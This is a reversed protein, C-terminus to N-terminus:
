RRKWRTPGYVASAGELRAVRDRLAKNEAELDDVRDEIARCREALTDALMHMADEISVRM